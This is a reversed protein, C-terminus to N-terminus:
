GPKTEFRCYDFVQYEREVRKGRDDVPFEQVRKRFVPTGGRQKCTEIEANERDSGIALGITSLAFILALILIVRNSPSRWLSHKAVKRSVKQFLQSLPHAM